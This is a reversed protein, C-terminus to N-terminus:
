RLMPHQTLYTGPHRAPQCTPLLRRWAITHALLPRERLHARVLLDHFRRVLAASIPDLKIGRLNLIRHAPGVHPLGSIGAKFRGGHCLWLNLEVFELVDLLGGFLVCGTVFQDQIQFCRLGFLQFLFAFHVSGCILSLAVLGPKWGYNGVNVLRAELYPTPLHLGDMQIRLNLFWTGEIVLLIVINSVNQLLLNSSGGYLLCSLWTRPPPPLCLPPSRWTVRRIRCAPDLHLNSLM